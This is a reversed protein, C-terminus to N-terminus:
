LVRTIFRVERITNGHEYSSPPHNDFITVLDDAIDLRMIITWNIGKEGWRNKERPWIRNQVKGEHSTPFLVGRFASLVKKHNSKHIHKVKCSKRYMDAPNNKHETKWLEKKNHKTKNQKITWVGLVSVKYKLMLKQMKYLNANVLWKNMMWSLFCLSFLIKLLENMPSWIHSTGIWSIKWTNFHNRIVPRLVKPSFCTNVYM